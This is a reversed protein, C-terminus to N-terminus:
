SLRDRGGWVKKEEREKDFKRFSTGRNKPGKNKKDIM